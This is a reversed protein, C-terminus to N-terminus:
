RMSDPLGPFNDRKAPAPIKRFGTPVVFLSDRLPAETVSQVENNLSVKINLPGEPLRNKPDGNSSHSKALAIAQETFRVTIDFNTRGSLPLGRIAAVKTLFEKM